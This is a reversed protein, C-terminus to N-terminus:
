LAVNIWYATRDSCLRVSVCVSASVQVRHDPKKAGGGRKAGVGKQVCRGHGDSGASLRAGDLGSILFLVGGQRGCVCM